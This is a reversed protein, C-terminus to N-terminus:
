VVEIILASWISITYATYKDLDIEKTQNFNLIHNYKKILNFESSQIEFNYNTRFNFIINSNNSFKYPSEYIIDENFKYVEIKYILNKM